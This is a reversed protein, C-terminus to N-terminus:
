ATVERATAPGTGMVKDIATSLDRRAQQLVERVYHREAAEIAAARNAQAHSTFAAERGMVTRRRRVTSDSVCMGEHKRILSAAVRDPVAGILNLAAASLITSRRRRRRTTRGRRENLLDHGAARAHEIADDECAFPKGEDLYETIVLAYGATLVSRIWDGLASDDYSAHGRTAHTVYNSRRHHLPIETEGVYRIADPDGSSTLAYTTPVITM